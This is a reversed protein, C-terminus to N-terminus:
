FYFYFHEIFIINFPLFTKTNLMCYIYILSNLVSILLCLSEFQILVFIFHFYFRSICHKFFICKLYFPLSDFFIFSVCFIGCLLFWLFIQPLVLIATYTSVSHRRAYFSSVFFRVALFDSVLYIFFFCVDLSTPPASIPVPASLVRTATATGLSAAHPVFPAPLRVVLLGQLGGNACLDVLIFPPPPTSCLLSRLGPSWCLSIFGWVKSQFRGYPNPLLLLSEWGWLLPRQLSGCPGLTHVLGGVWSGAGSPGIQNHPASPTVSIWHLTSRVGNSGRPGEGVYLTM